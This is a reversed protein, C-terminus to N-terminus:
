DTESVLKWHDLYIDYHHDGDWEPGFWELPATTPPPGDNGGGLSLFAGWWSYTSNAIIHADQDIMSRLDTVPDREQLVVRIKHVCRKVDERKLFSWHDRVWLGDDSYVNLVIPYPSPDERERERMKKLIYSLAREYYKDGVMRHIHNLKLYDGRRVHMSINYLAPAPSPSPSSSGVGLAGRFITKIYNEYGEWYKPSQFYGVLIINSYSTDLAKHLLDTNWSFTEEHVVRTRPSHPPLAHRAIGRVPSSSDRGGGREFLSRVLNPRSPDRGEVTAYVQEKQNRRKAVILGMAIQFLQNGLGGQIVVYIGGGMSYIIKEGELLIM